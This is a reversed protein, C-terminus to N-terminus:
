SRFLCVGDLALAIQLAHHDHWDSLGHGQGIWLSGGQWLYVRGVALMRGSAASSSPLATTGPPHEPHPM